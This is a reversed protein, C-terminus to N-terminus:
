QIAGSHDTLPLRAIGAAFARFPWLTPMTLRECDSVLLGAARACGTIDRDPRRGSALRTFPGFAHQVRGTLGREATPEVFLLVGDATLLRRVARLAGDL